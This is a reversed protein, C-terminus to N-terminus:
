IGEPISFYPLNQRTISADHLYGFISFLVAQAKRTTNMQLSAIIM